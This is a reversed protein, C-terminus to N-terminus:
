VIKVTFGKRVRVVSVVATGEVLRDLDQGYNEKIAGGDKLVNCGSMIWTGHKLGTASAPLDVSEPHCATVGIEVSGSWSNLQFM